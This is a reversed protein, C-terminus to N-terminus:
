QLLILLPVFIMGMIISFSILSAAFEMDLSELFSYTLTTYGVPAAAGIMVISRNLGELGFLGALLFGLAFGIIMRTLTAWLVPVMRTMRPSFYLGLALMVLPTMMWGVMQLFDNIFFPIRIKMLNVAVAIVLAWMPPVLFLKKVMVKKDMGSTGHKCALWYTFTFIVTMHGFDFMTIRALGEKGYATIFFPLTFGINMITSGVIFTGLTARTLRLAKGLLFSIGTTALVVLAASVPLFVFNLRLEIDAISIIVLAPLAIYYVVKLFLDGDEKKLINLRKLVYGLLFILVVPVIKLIVNMDKVEVVAPSSATLQM